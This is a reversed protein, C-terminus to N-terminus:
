CGYPLIEGHCTYLTGTPTNGGPCGGPKYRLMVWVLLAELLPDMLLFTSSGFPPTPEALNPQKRVGHNRSPWRPSKVSKEWSCRAEEPIGALVQATLEQAHRTEAGPLRM